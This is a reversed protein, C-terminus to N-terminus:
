AAEWWAGLNNNENLELWTIWAKRGSSLIIEADEWESETMGDEDFDREVNLRFNGTLTVCDGARFLIVEDTLDDFLAPAGSPILDGKRYPGFTEVFRVRQNAFREDFTNWGNPENESYKREM